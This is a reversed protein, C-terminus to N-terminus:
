HACVNAQAREKSEKREAITWGMIHTQDCYAPVLWSLRPSFSPGGGILFRLPRGGTEDDPSSSSLSEGADFPPPPPPPPPLVAPVLAPVLLPPPAPAPPAPAGVVGVFFQCGRETMSLFFGRWVFTTSRFRRFAADVAPAAIVEDASFDLARLMSSLELSSSRGSDRSRGDLSRDPVPPAAFSAFAPAPPTASSRRAICKVSSSSELSLSSSICIRGPLPPVAPRLPVAALAVLAAPLPPPLTGLARPFFIGSM